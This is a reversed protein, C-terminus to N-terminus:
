FFIIHIYGMQFHSSDSKSIDSEIPSRSNVSDSAFCIHTVNSGFFRILTVKLQLTFLAERGKLPQAAGNQVSEVPM